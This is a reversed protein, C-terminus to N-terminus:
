QRREKFWGSIEAPDLRISTNIKYSPIQRKKVMGYLAGRSLELSIALEEITWATTRSELLEALSLARPGAAESLAPKVHRTRM